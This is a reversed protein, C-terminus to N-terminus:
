GIPIYNYDQLIVGVIEYEFGVEIGHNKLLESNGVGSLELILPSRTSGASLIVEKQALVRYVVGNTAYLAGTAANSNGLLVKEVLAGTIVELNSHAKAPLDYATAAYSWTRSKLDVNILNTYGGLAHGDQSRVKWGLNKYSRPWAEYPLLSKWLWTANGLEGWNDIDQQPQHTWFMFNLASSGELNSEVLILSQPVTRYNWDYEPNGYMGTYLRPPLVNAGNSHGKGAELVVVPINPDEKFRAAVKLGAIGGGIIDFLCDEWGMGLEHDKQRRKQKVCFDWRDPWLKTIKRQEADKKGRLEELEDVIPKLKNMEKALTAWSNGNRRKVQAYYGVDRSIDGLTSNFNGLFDIAAKLYFNADRHVIAPEKLNRWHGDFKALDYQEAPQLGNQKGGLWAILGPKYSAKAALTSSHLQVQNESRRRLESVDSYHQNIANAYTIGTHSTQLLSVLHKSTIGVFDGFESTLLKAESHLEQLQQPGLDTPRFYAIPRCVPHQLTNQAGSLSSDNTALLYCHGQSLLLYSVACTAMTWVQLERFVPLLTCAMSTMTTTHAAISWIPNPYRAKSETVIEEIRALMVSLNIGFSRVLADVGNDFESLSNSLTRTNRLLDMYEKAMEDRLYVDSARVIESASMLSYSSYEVIKAIPLLKMSLDAIEQTNLMANHLTTNLRPYYAGASTEVPAVTAFKLVLPFVVKNVIFNDYLSFGSFGPFWGISAPPNYVPIEESILTHVRRVLWQITPGLIPVFGVLYLAFYLLFWLIGIFFVVRFFWIVPQRLWSRLFQVVSNYDTESLPATAPLVPAPLATSPPATALSATSAALPSAARPIATRPSSKRVPSPPDTKSKRSTKRAPETVRPSKENSPPLTLPDPNLAPSLPLSIDKPVRWSEVSALFDEGDEWSGYSLIEQRLTRGLIEIDSEQYWLEVLRMQAFEEAKGVEKTLDSVLTEENYDSPNAFVKETSKRSEEYKAVYSTPDSIFHGLLEPFNAPHHAMSNPQFTRHQTM